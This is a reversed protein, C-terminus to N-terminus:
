RVWAAPYFTKYEDLITYVVSSGFADALEEEIPRDSGSSFRRPPQLGAAKLIKGLNDDLLYFTTRAVPKVDGSQYVLGAEFSLTANKRGGTPPKTAPAPENDKAYEWTGDSKLVVTRGEKTTTTQTTIPEAPRPPTRRRTRAGSSARGLLDPACALFNNETENLDERTFLPQGVIAKLQPARDANL